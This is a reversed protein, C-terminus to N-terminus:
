SLHWNGAILNDGAYGKERVGVDDVEIERCAIELRM